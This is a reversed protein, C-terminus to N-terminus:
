EVPIGPRDTTGTAKKQRTSDDRRRREKERQKQERLQKELQSIREEMEQGEITKGYNELISAITEGEVPTINGTAIAQLVRQKALNVDDLHNLKPLKLRVGPERLAPLIREMCLGLARTDGALGQAICKKILSDSYQDLIEQALASRKNRSGKPRGRGFRNGPPFPRGRTESM